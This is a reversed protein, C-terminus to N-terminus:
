SNRRRRSGEYRGVSPLGHQAFLLDLGRLFLENASCGLDIALRRLSKHDEPLLYVTQAVTAAKIGEVTGTAAEKTRPLDHPPPATRAQGPKAEFEDLIERAITM